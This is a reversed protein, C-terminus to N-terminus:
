YGAGRNGRRGTIEVVGKNCSRALVLFVSPALLTPLRGVIQSGYTKVAVARQDETNESEIELRLKRGAVVPSWVAM